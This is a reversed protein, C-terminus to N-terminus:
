VMLRDSSPTETSPADSASADRDRQLKRTAAVQLFVAIATVLLVIANVLQHGDASNLFDTM